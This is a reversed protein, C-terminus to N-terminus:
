GDIELMMQKIGDGAGVDNGMYLVGIVVGVVFCSVNFDDSWQFCWWGGIILYMIQHSASSKFGGLTCLM